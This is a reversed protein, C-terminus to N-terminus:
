LLKRLRAPYNTIIADVGKDIWKKMDKEDNVTWVWIHKGMKKYKKLRKSTCWTHDLNLSTVNCSRIFIKRRAFRHFSHLLYGRRIEPALKKMRYINLPNFSSIIIRDQIDYYKILDVLKKEIGDSFYGTSKIEINITSFKNGFNLFVEHLTAIMEGKKLKFKRLQKLTSRRVELNHGTIRHINEDHTVVIEGDATIIVDCEFGDAGQDLALQFAKLTNEPAEGSAGRHAIVLPRM